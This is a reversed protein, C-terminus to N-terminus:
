NLEDEQISELFESGKLSSEDIAILRRKKNSKKSPKIKPPMKILERRSSEEDTSKKFDQYRRITLPAEHQIVAMVIDEVVSEDDSHDM